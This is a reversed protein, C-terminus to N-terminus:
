QHKAGLQDVSLALRASRKMAAENEYIIDTARHASVWLVLILFRCLVVWIGTVGSLMALLSRSSACISLM